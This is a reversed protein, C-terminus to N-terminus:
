SLSLSFPHIGAEQITSKRRHSWARLCVPFVRQWTLATPHALFNTFDPPVPFVVTAEGAQWRTCCTQWTHTHTHWALHHSHSVLSDRRVRPGSPARQVDLWKVDSDARDISRQSWTVKRQSNIIHECWKMVFLVCGSYVPQCLFRTKTKTAWVSFHLSIVKFYLHVYKKM